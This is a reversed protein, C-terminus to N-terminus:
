KSWRPRADTTQFRAAIWRRLAKPGPVPVDDLILGAFDERRIGSNADRIALGRTWLIPLLECICNQRPPASTHNRM